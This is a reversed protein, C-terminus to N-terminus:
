VNLSLQLSLRKLAAVLEENSRNKDVFCAAGAQLAAGIVDRENLVSLAIVAIEPQERTIMRTAEIGNRRPMNIDMIVIHPRLRRVLEVAAEGDGAEGVVLFGNQSEILARLGTRVLEHDDVLVVRLANFDDNGARAVPAAAPPPAALPRLPVRLTARTGAGPQSVLHFSGGLADLRERISFLGFRGTSAHEAGAPPADFGAGQDAVVVLLEREEVVRMEVRAQHTRAHKVVNFLLERIAQFLLVAQEDPLEVRGKCVVTVDLQHRKMHRALWRVADMLGAEYLVPPSLEVILSGVYELAQVLLADIENLIASAGKHEVRKYLRGTNMRATTLLQALHDHLEGAVRRREWQEALALEAALQRLQLQRQLLATTREDVRKELTLNLRRLEEEQRKRDTIDILYGLAGRVQKHEDYLPVAYVLAYRELGSPHVVKVEVGRISCRRLAACRLPFEERTLEREGQFVRHRSPPCDADKAASAPCLADGILAAGAENVRIRACDPDEAVAIGIPAQHILTHLEERRYCADRYLELQRQEAEHAHTVDQIVAVLSVPRGDANAIVSCTLDGWFFSGDARRFRKRAYDHTQAGTALRRMRERDEGRDGQFSVDELRRVLLEPESYQFLRCLTPNVMIFRGDLTLEAGGVAASEFMCRLRRGKEAVDRLRDRLQQHRLRACLVARLASLVSRASLPREFVVLGGADELPRLCGDDSRAASPGALLFLTPPQEASLAALRQVLRPLADRELAPEDILVAATDPGVADLLAECGPHTELAVGAQAISLLLATGDATAPPLAAVHEDQRPSDEM